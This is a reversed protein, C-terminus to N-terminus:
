HSMLVPVTMHELINRTTGGLVLERIRSHAYAGMVILDASFDSAASLLLDGTSLSRSGFVATEAEPVKSVTHHAEAEIGHQALHAAIYTPITPRTSATSSSTRRESWSRCPM